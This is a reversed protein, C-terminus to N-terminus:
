YVEQTIESKRITKVKSMLPNCGAITKGNEDIIFDNWFSFGRADIGSEYRFFDWFDSYKYVTRNYESIISNIEEPDIGAVGGPVSLWIKTDRYFQAM